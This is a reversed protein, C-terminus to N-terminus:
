RALWPGMEDLTARAWKRVWERYSGADRANAAVDAITVSWAIEPLPPADPPRTVKWARRDQGVEKVAQRRIAETPVGAELFSRLKEEIWALGEDSYRRHQIMYCAVTLLHVAGYGPDTYDLVLFSEFIEQCSADKELSAGCEPCTRPM